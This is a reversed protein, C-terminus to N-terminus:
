KSLAASWRPHGGRQNWFIWTVVAPSCPNKGFIRTVGAPSWPNTEFFDPSWRPHGDSQEFFNPHGGRPVASIESDSRGPFFEPFFKFFHQKQLTKEIYKRNKGRFFIKETSFIGPGRFVFMSKETSFVAIKETSFIGHKKQGHIKNGAPQPGGLGM